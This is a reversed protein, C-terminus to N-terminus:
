PRDEGIRDLLTMVDDFPATRHYGDPTAASNIQDCVALFAYGHILSWVQVEIVKAPVGDPVFPACADTLIGSAREAAQGLSADFAGIGRNKRFMLTFLADNKLAFAMYGRCIAHLRARPADHAHDREAEMADAFRTFGREAIARLLGPLGDFHHAPAAHSVGARAACRRLTLAELGGETLLACGADILRDRLPPTPAVIM